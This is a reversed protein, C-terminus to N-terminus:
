DHLFLEFIWCFCLERNKRAIEFDNLLNFKKVNFLKYIGASYNIRKQCNASLRTNEFLYVIFQLNLM